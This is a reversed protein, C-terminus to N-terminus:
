EVWIEDCAIMPKKNKRYRWGPLAPQNAARVKIYRVTENVSFHFPLMNISYDEAPIKNSVTKLKVYQIGDASVEVNIESPRFIWHRADELFHISIDKVKKESGMDIMAEMPVGYFCLWNYSFDAYGPTEDVLTRELKAPYESAFPYTLHVAADAALNDKPKTHFIELWQQMYKEPSIGTESFEKVNAEKCIAIFQQVRKPLREKLVFKGSADKEFIGHLDRGFFKSQQLYVYEHTLRLMQIHHYSASDNETLQEAKDMLDSYVNMNGPSLYGNHDNVPNGYIDLDSTNSNKQLLSLYSAVVPAAKGYYGKLFDSTLAVVDVSPNWLLYSLIYSKLEPMDSYTDGSGQEFVGSVNQQKFLNINPQFTNTVPFPTLYNTFQTCYDWVFINQAREKWKALDNRFGSAGIETQLPNSRYADISSLMIIVNSAPKSHITAHSSYGYALTTIKKTPFYAAVANVFHILSGQPGGDAADLKKCNDCECNGTDDNPSVSWYLASPNDSMQKRLHDITIKLVAPNTLCLQMPKRQGNVLSFYEPHSHFYIEPSVIKFFSHGWLGWLEEFRHLRHWDLYEDDFAPPFYAERYVFAPIEKEHIVAPISLAPEKNIAATHGDWKHCGMYKEIFDYVGYLTGKAGKGCIVINRQVTRIVFAEDPLANIEKDNVAISTAGIFIGPSKKNEIEIICHSGTVRYFFSKLVNAAKLENSNPNAPTYIRYDTTGNKALEITQASCDTCAAFFAPMFLIIYSNWLKM